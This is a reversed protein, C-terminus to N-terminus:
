ILRTSHFNKWNWASSLFSKIISVFLKKKVQFAVLNYGEDSLFLCATYNGGGYPYNVVGHTLAAPIGTLIIVIWATFIARCGNGHKYTQHSKTFENNTEISVFAWLNM